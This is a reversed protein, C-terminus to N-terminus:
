LARVHPLRVMRGVQEVLWAVREKAWEDWRHKLRQMESAMIGSLAREVDGSTLGPKPKIPDSSNVFLSLVLALPVPDSNVPRDPLPKLSSMRPPVTPTSMISSLPSPFGRSPSVQEGDFITFNRYAKRRSRDADSPRARPTAFDSIPTELIQSNLTAPTLRNDDCYFDITSVTPPTLPTVPLRFAVGLDYASLSSSIKLIRQRRHLSASKPPLRTYLSEESNATSRSWRTDSPTERYGVVRDDYDNINSNFSQLSRARRPIHYAVAKSEAHWGRTAERITFSSLLSARHTTRSTTRGAFLTFTTDTGSSKRRAIIPNGAGTSVEVADHSLDAIYEDLDFSAERGRFSFPPITERPSVAPVEELYSHSSVQDYPSEIFSSQPLHFMKRLDHLINDFGVVDRRGILNPELADSIAEAQRKGRGLFWDDDGNGLLRYRKTLLLDLFILRTDEPDSMTRIEALLHDTQSISWPERPIYDSSVDVESISPITQMSWSKSISISEVSPSFIVPLSPRRDPNFIPLQAKSYSSKNRRHSRWWSATDSVTRRAGLRSGISFARVKTPTLTPSITSASPRPSSPSISAADDLASSEEISQVFRALGFDALVGSIIEKRSHNSVRRRVSLLERVVM